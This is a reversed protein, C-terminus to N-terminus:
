CRCCYCSLGEAIPIANLPSQPFETLAQTMQDAKTHYTTICTISVTNSTNSHRHLIVDGIIEDCAGDRLINLADRLLHQTQSAQKTICSSLTTLTTPTACVKWSHDEKM